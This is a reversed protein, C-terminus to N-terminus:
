LNKIRIRLKDNLKCKDFADQLLELFSEDQTFTLTIYEYQKNNFYYEIMKKKHQEKHSQYYNKNSVKKLEKKDM